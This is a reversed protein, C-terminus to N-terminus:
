YGRGNTLDIQIFPTPAAGNRRMILDQVVTGIRLWEDYLLFSDAGAAKAPGTRDIGSVMVIPTSPAVLRFKEILEVGTMESTRHSVIATLGGRRAMEIASEGDQAEQIIATPFKRLLCKVLLFRSDANHDVVLFVPLPTDV